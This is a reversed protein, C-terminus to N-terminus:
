PPETWTAECAPAGTGDVCTLELRFDVRTARCLRFTPSDGYLLFDGNRLPVRRASLAGHLPLGATAWTSALSVVCSDSSVEFRPSGEACTGNEIVVFRETPCHDEDTCSVVGFSAVVFSAVVLAAVRPNSM